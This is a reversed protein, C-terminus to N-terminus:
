AGDVLAGLAGVVNGGSIVLAGVGIFIETTTIALFLQTPM